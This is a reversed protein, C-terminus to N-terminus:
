ERPPDDPDPPVGNPTSGPGLTRVSVIMVTPMVGLLADVTPSDPLDRRSPDPLADQEVTAFFVTLSSGNSMFPLSWEVFTSAGQTM